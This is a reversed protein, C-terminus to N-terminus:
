KSYSSLGSVGNILSFPVHMVKIDKISAAPAADAHATIQVTVAEYKEGKDTEKEEMYILFDAKLTPNEGSVAKEGGNLEGQKQNETAGYFNLLEGKIKEFGGVKLSAMGVIFDTGKGPNHYYAVVEMPHVEGEPLDKKIQFQYAIEQAQDDSYFPKNEWYKAMNSIIADKSEELQNLNTPLWIDGAFEGPGTAPANADKVTVTITATKDGAKATVVAEGAALGKVTLGEIKAVEPKDVSYTIKTGIPDVKVTFAKSEGVKLTMTSPTVELSKVNAPTVPTPTNGGGGNNDKKCSSFTMVGVLAAACLALFSKKTM